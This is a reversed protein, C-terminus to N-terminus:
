LAPNRWSQVGDGFQISGYTTWVTKQCPFDGANIWGERKLTRRIRREVEKSHTGIHLRRVKKKLLGVSSEVVDAEAGQVDMDIIDVFSIADLIEPLTKVEVDITGWGGGADTVPRGYYEGMQSGKKQPKKEFLAQGYWSKPGSLGTQPPAVVCFPMTGHEKGIAAEILTYCSPAIANTAMHQRAWQAHMPEAEVLVAHVDTIGRQRAALLASCAWRGFGAGLEVVTFKAGAERVAELIDVWEFYEENFGPPPASVYMEDRRPVEFFESAMMSGIFDVSMGAKVIGSFPTFENFIPHHRPASKTARRWLETVTNMMSSM